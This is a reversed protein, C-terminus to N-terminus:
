EGGFKSKIKGGVNVAKLAKIIGLKEVKSQLNKRYYSVGKFSFLWVPVLLLLAIIFDGMIVTNNFGTFPVLPTKMLLTWVGTLFPATLVAYGIFDGAPDLGLAILKFIGVSLFFMGTHARLLLLLLFVILINAPAIMLLGGFMGLTVGLAIEKPDKNSNLINLASAFQKLM